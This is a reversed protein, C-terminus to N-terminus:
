PLSGPKWPEPPLEGRLVKGAKGALKLYHDPAVGVEYGVFRSPEGEPVTNVCKFIATGEDVEDFMAVYLMEAGATKAALVQAWLFDGQLRPVQNLQGGHMNYWSFGPYVVPMYDLGRSRCWALDPSLCKTAHRAVGALDGYRGVTWPSVLDALAIIEHLVPDAVADAKLNLWYAPVGLMVTCGGAQPDSKLFQVLKRCDALSYSDPGHRDSFGIGWVTVVPKGRHRFYAPDDTIRMQGRLVRWDDIVEDIRNPGMGSLDYMVSYGRGHRNAGERCSALVTNHHRLFRPDRLPSAFRQVFAGDIGSQQMWQFHRIVTAAHYSSFVEAVSGDPFKFGTPYREEPALESVDPWFDVKANGPEMAGRGKTWHVFGREAGDGEANFWGQYGTVVKGRLTSTDVGPHSPGAYPKCTEALVSERTLAPKPAALASAAVWALALGSTLAPVFRM